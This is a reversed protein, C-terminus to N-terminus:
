SPYQHFGGCGFEDCLAARILELLTGLIPGTYETTFTVGAWLCTILSGTKDSCGEMHSHPADGDWLEWLSV